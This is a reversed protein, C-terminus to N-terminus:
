EPHEETAGYVLMCTVSVCILTVFCGFLFIVHDAM